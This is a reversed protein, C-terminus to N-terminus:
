LNADGNVLCCKRVSRSIDLKANGTRIEFIYNLLNSQVFPKFTSIILLQGGLPGFNYSHSLPLYVAEVVCYDWFTVGM